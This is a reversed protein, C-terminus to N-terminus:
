PQVREGSRGGAILRGAGARIVLQSSVPAPPQPMQRAEGALESVKRKHPMPFFSARVLPCPLRMTPRSTPPECSYGGCAGKQRIKEDWCRLCRGATTQATTLVAATARACTLNRTARPERQVVQM